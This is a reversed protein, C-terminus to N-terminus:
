RQGDDGGGEIRNILTDMDAAFLSDDSYVHERITKLMELMEPAAAILRANAEFRELEWTRNPDLVKCIALDDADSRTYWPGPTHKPKM